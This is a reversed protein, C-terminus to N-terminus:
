NRVKYETSEIISNEKTQITVMETGFPISFSISNISRQLIDVKKNSLFYGDETPFIYEKGAILYISTDVIPTPLEAENASIKDLNPAFHQELSVYSIGKNTTSEEFITRWDKGDIKIIKNQKIGVLSPLMIYAEGSLTVGLNDRLNDEGSYKSRIAGRFAAQVIQGDYEFSSNCEVLNFTRIYQERKINKIEKYVLYVRDLAKIYKSVEVGDTEYSYMIAENGSEKDKNIFAVPIANTSEDVLVEIKSLSQAIIDGSQASTKNEIKTKNRFRNIYDDNYM